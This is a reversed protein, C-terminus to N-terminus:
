DLLDRLKMTLQRATYPKQLWNGAEALERGAIRPEAYGSTFLIKIDPRIARVEAALEDGTMGGPMAIDTFLLKIGPNLEILGLAAAGTEAELIAYGADRLRAAAIRRVRADDEVVLITEQGRLMGGTDREVESVIEVKDAIAPLFLRVSTGRGLESDIEVHGGSQRAFGYVMSLGLGTGVSVDKTTFFPEFARQKVDESMGIGTDAVTILVYDGTRTHTYMQAYDLDLHRRSIEVTLQGGRPMADRANLGLNLLANQLQHVDVM